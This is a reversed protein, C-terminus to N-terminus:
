RRIIPLASGPKNSMTSCIQKASTLFSRQARSTVSLTSPVPAKGRVQRRIEPLRAREVRLDYSSQLNMWFEASTGFYLSLRFATDATISRNAKAIQDIRRAPIGLDFPLKNKSIGM